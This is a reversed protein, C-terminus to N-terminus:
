KKAFYKEMLVKDEGYVDDYFKITGNKGECSFYRIYLPIHNKVDVRHREKNAIWNRISDATYKLSDRKTSLTSDNGAIYYALKEWEQVRVCGHSLARSANKFLYRQNTDHLYVAYPNNFNFKIVGLSNNDGSGQMIKYPIGRSYKSWNVTNPDIIEGKGNLLKLGIRSIYNPNNKLKPLYQKVIISNPVTWTPYTIMDSIESTLLPTRTEPKGTIVKSEFVVTDANILWLYYGPINVWIYKEPMKVPLQKYRDLTIAIRKFKEVDNSNLAAILNKGYKGDAQLGNQSQYKKIARSLGASDPLGTGTEISHSELLRKQLLQIFYLSDKTDGRKFPYSIHTYQRRDMSDVFRKIGKKLEWYNKHKPQLSILLRALDKKDLLENLTAIFFKDVLVSDKNLSLSDPQLRGQKLDKILHMFGDTLLLDAKTWLSANMRTLSDADLTDKLAKLNKYHYDNPFLGDNEALAIFQYLSDAVPMWKETSSWVPKYDGRSYFEEVIQPMQIQTSDDIKGSNDSATKVVEKILDSVKSDMVVPDTIIHEEKKNDKNNCSSLFFVFFICISYYRYRNKCHQM